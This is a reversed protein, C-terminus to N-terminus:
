AAETRAAMLDVVLACLRPCELSAQELWTVALDEVCGARVRFSIDEGVVYLSAEDGYISAILYVRPETSLYGCFQGFPASRRMNVGMITIRDM